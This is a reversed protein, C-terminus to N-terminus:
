EKVTSILVTSFSLSFVASTSDGFAGVSSCYNLYM